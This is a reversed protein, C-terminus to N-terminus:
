YISLNDNLPWSDIKHISLYNISCYCDKIVICSFQVLKMWGLGDWLVFDVVISVSNLKIIPYAKIFDLSSVLLPCTPDRGWICHIYITLSVYVGLLFSHILMKVIVKYQEVIVKKLFFQTPFLIKIWPLGLIKQSM